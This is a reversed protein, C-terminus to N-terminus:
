YDQRDLFSAIPSMLSEHRQFPAMFDSFRAEICAKNPKGHRPPWCNGPCKHTTMVKNGAVPLYSIM